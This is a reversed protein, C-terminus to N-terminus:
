KRRKKNWLMLLVTGLLFLVIPGEGVFGPGLFTIILGGIVFLAGVWLFVLGSDFLFALGSDISSTVSHSSSSPSISPPPVVEPKVDEPLDRGCYRCVNAQVLVMEACSPCPFRDSASDEPTKAADLVEKHMRTRQLQAMLLFFMVVIFIPSGIITLLDM